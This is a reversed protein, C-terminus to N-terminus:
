WVRVSTSGSTESANLLSVSVCQVKHKVVFDIHFTLLASPLPSTWSWQSTEVVATREDTNAKPAEPTQTEPCPSLIPYFMQRQKQKEGEWVYMSGVETLGVKLLDSWDTVWLIQPTRVTTKRCWISSKLCESCMRAEGGTEAWPGPHYYIWEINTCDSHSHSKRHSETGVPGVTSLM